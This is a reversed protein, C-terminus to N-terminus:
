SKQNLVIYPSALRNEEKMKDLEEIAVKPTKGSRCVYCTVDALGDMMIDSYKGVAASDLVVIDYMERLCGLVQYLSKHALIDAPNVGNIADVPIVDLGQICSKKVISLIEEKTLAHQQLLTVFDSNAPVGLVTAVSPHHFNLDCLVTKEGMKAFSEALRSACFTKGDGDDASTVLISKKERLYHLLNKRVIRFSEEDSNSSLTGILPIRTLLKLDIDSDVKSKLQRQIFFVVYPILLGLVVAIILISLTKPKTKKQYLTEDIKRGKDTMNALELANEERKQLLGVYVSQKVNRDRGIETLVREQEPASGVRGMYRNYEGEAVRKRMLLSERERLVATQIAPHLDDILQKNQKVMASQETMSKLMM